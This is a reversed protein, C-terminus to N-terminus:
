RVQQNLNLSNKCYNQYFSIVHFQPHLHPSLSYFIIFSLQKITKFIYKLSKILNLVNKKNVTKNIKRSVFQICKQPLSIPLLPNDFANHHTILFSPWFSVFNHLM